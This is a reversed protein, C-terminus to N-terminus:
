KPQNFRSLRISRVLERSRDALCGGIRGFPHSSEMLLTARFEVSRDVARSNGKGPCHLCRWDASALGNYEDKGIEISWTFDGCRKLSKKARRPILVTSTGM